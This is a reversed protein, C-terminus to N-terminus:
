DRQIKVEQYKKEELLRTEDWQIKLPIPIPTEIWEVGVDPLYSQHSMVKLRSLQSIPSNRNVTTAEIQEVVGGPFYSKSNETQRM